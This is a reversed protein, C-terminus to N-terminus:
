RVDKRMIEAIPSFFALALIAGDTLAVLSGVFGDLPPAVAMGSFPIMIISIAVTTLLLWRGWSHLLFLGLTSLLKAAGISLYFLPHQTLAISGYGGWDLLDQIHPPFSRQTYPLLYWALYFVASIIVLFQFVRIRSM